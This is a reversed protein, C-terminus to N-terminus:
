QDGRLWPVARGECRGGAPVRVRDAAGGRWSGSSSGSSGGSRSAWRGRHPGAQRRATRGCGDPFLLLLLPPPLRHLRYTHLTDRHAHAQTRAHVIYSCNHVHQVHHAHTRAHAHTHTQTHTHKHTHTHTRAHTRTLTLTRRHLTCACPTRVQTLLMCASTHQTSTHPFHLRSCAHMGVCVIRSVCDHLAFVCMRMMCACAHLGWGWGRM